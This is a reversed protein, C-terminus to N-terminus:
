GYDDDDDNDDDDDDVVFVVVDVAFMGFGIILNSLSIDLSRNIVL